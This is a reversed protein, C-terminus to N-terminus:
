KCGIVAKIRAADATLDNAQATTLGKGVSSQV